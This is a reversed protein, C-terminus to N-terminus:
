AFEVEMWSYAPQLDISVGSDQFVHITFVEGGAVPLWPTTLQLTIEGASTADVLVESGPDTFQAGDVYLRVGRQGTSNAALQVQATVKARRVGAPVTVDSNASGGLANLTDLNLTNWGIKRWGNHVVAFVGTREQQIVAPQGGVTFPIAAQSAHEGHGADAFVRLQAGAEVTPRTISFPDVVAFNYVEHGFCSASGASTAKATLAGFFRFMSNYRSLSRPNIQAQWHDDVTGIPSQTKTPRAILNNDGDLLTEQASFTGTIGAPYAFLVAARPEKPDTFVEDVEMTAGSTGGTLTIGEAGGAYDFVMMMTRNEVTAVPESDIVLVEGATFTGSVGSLILAGFGNENGVRVEEITATAGSSQGVVGSGPSMTFIQDRYRLVTRTNFPGTDDAHLRAEGTGIRTNFFACHDSEEIELAYDTGLATHLTNNWFYCNTANYETGLALCSGGGNLNGGNEDVCKDTLFCDRVTAGESNPDGAGFLTYCGSVDLMRSTAGAFTVNEYKMSRTGRDWVLIGAKNTGTVGDLTVNRLAGGFSKNRSFWSRPRRDIWLGNAAGNYVFTTPGRPYFKEKSRQEQEMLIQGDGAGEITLLDAHWHVYGFEFVGAPFYVKAGGPLTAVYDIMAQMAETNDQGESIGFDLASFGSLALMPLRQFPTVGDGIKLGYGGSSRIHAMQGRALTPNAEAWETADASRVPYHHKTERM